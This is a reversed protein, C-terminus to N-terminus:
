VEMCSKWGTMKELWKKDHVKTRDRKMKRLKKVDSDRHMYPLGLINELRERRYGTGYNMHAGFREFYLTNIYLATAMVTAKICVDLDIPFTVSFDDPKSNIKDLSDRWKGQISGM